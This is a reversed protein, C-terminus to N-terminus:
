HKTCTLSPSTKLNLPFPDPYCLFVFVALSLSTKRPECYRPTPNVFLPLGSSGNRM